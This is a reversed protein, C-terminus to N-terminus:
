LIVELEKFNDGSKEVIYRLYDSLGLEESSDDEGEESHQNASTPKDPPALKPVVAHASSIFDKMADMGGNILEKLFAKVKGDAKEELQAKRGTATELEALLQERNEENLLELLHHDEITFNDVVTLEPMANRSDRLNTSEFFPSM